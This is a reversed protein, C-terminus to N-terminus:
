RYARRGAAWSRFIFERRRLLQLSNICSQFFDNQAASQPLSYRHHLLSGVLILVHLFRDLKGDARSGLTDIDGIKDGESKKIINLQRRFGLEVDRHAPAIRLEAAGAWGDKDSTLLIVETKAIGDPKRRHSVQAAAKIFVFNRQAGDAYKRGPISQNKCHAFFSADLGEFVHDFLSVRQAYRGAAPHLKLGCDVGDFFDKFSVTRAKALDLTPAAFNHFRRIRAAGHAPIMDFGARGIGHEVLAYLAPALPRQIRAHAKQRDIIGGRAVHLFDAKGTGHQCRLMIGLKFAGDATDIKAAPSKETMGVQRRGDGVVHGLGDIEAVLSNGDIVEVFSWHRHGLKATAALGSLQINREM